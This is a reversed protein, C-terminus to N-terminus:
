EFETAWIKVEKLNQLRNVGLGPKNDYSSVDCLLMKAEGNEAGSRKRNKKMPGM